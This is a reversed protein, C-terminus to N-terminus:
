LSIMQKAKKLKQNFTEYNTKKKGQAKEQSHINYKSLFRSVSRRNILRDRYEEYETDSVGCSLKVKEFLLMCGIDSFFTDHGIEHLLSFFLKKEIDWEEEDSTMYRHIVSMIHRTNETNLSKGELEYEKVRVQPSSPKAGLHEVMNSAVNGINPLVPSPTLNSSPKSNVLFCQRIKRYQARQQITPTMNSNILHILENYFKKKRQWREEKFRVNESPIGFLEDPRKIENNMRFNKWTFAKLEARKLIKALETRQDYVKERDSDRQQLIDNWEYFKKEKTLQQVDSWSSFEVQIIEPLALTKSDTSYERIKALSKKDLADLVALASNYPLLRGGIRKILDKRKDKSLNDEIEIIEENADIQQSIQRAEHQKDKSSGSNTISDPLETLFSKPMELDSFVNAQERPTSHISSFRIKSKPFPSSEGDGKILIPFVIEDKREYIPTHLDRILTSGSKVGLMRREADRIMKKNFCTTRKRWISSSSNRAPRSKMDLFINSFDFLWTGDEDKILHLHKKNDAENKCIQREQKNDKSENYDNAIRQHQSSTIKSRTDDLSKRFNNQYQKLSQLVFKDLEHDRLELTGKENM